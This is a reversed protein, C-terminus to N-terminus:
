NAELIQILTAQIRLQRPTESKLVHVLGTVRVRDGNKPLAAAASPKCSGLAEVPVSGTADELVFSALGYLPCLRGVSPPVAQFAHTM